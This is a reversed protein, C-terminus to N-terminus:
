DVPLPKEYLNAGDNLREYINFISNKNVFVKSDFWNGPANCACLTSMEDYSNEEKARM